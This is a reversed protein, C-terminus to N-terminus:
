PGFALATPFNVGQSITRLLKKSRPAYVTVHNNGYNGVYLNGLGDFALRYPEKLGQSITRLVSKGAPAYVTVTSPAYEHIKRCFPSPCGYNAVNLSGSADFALANPRNVDDSITRLVNKRGPAYVTVTDTGSSLCKGCNAVYLNQSADLALALPDAVGQTITRLISTKGSAYVTVTNANTNAVYLNDSGDLALADPFDVGQSITRLVTNSGPAYVTVTSPGKSPYDAPNAVYLNGTGDIALAAPTNVGQSITRLVSTSGPAYVTVTSPVTPSCSPGSFCGYNAVYLNGGVDFALAQPQYVGQSITRLVSNSGPAYVTVTNAPYGGNAIYLNPGETVPRSTIRASSQHAGIQPAVSVPTSLGNSTGGCAALLAASFCAGAFSWLKKM